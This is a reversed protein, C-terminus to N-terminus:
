HNALQCYIRQFLCTYSIAIHSTINLTLHFKQETSIKAFPPYRPPMFDLTFGMYPFGNQRYTPSFRPQRFVSPCLISTISYKNLYSLVAKHEYFQLNWNKKHM